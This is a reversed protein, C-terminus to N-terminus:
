DGPIRSLAAQSAPADTHAAALPKAAPPRPVDHHVPPEIGGEPPPIAEDAVTTKNEAAIRDLMNKTDDVVNVEDGSAVASSINLAVRDGPSVGSDLAAVDGNDKAITVGSFTVKDDAGVVAVQLGTPRFLIAAAPVELLGPVKLEFGVQVYMGPILSLDPNPIDVETRQTRTQSDLSMSSRAVKGWFVRGPFQDSTLYAPLGVTTEAAAKQPVDVFVRIVNSQAIGYLPTTNSGANILDGVDIRRSTIVGDYPATVQKFAALASYRGVDAEAVNAQAKAEDLHALSSEYDAKKQEREQESVVGKPSEWWRQYTVKAISVDSEVVKVEAEAAAARARAGNLQQDLDPTEITALVQGQKVRDGIDASWSGLYGDVRAYITSQYWGATQGPLVLPYSKPSLQVQVVDVTVRADSSATTQHELQAEHRERVYFSIAFGIILVLAVASVGIALVRTTGDAVEISVRGHGPPEAEHHGIGTEPNSPKEIEPPL